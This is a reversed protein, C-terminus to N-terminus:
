AVAVEAMEEVSADEDDPIFEKAKGQLAKEFKQLIDELLEKPLLEVRSMLEENQEARKEERRGEIINKLRLSNKWLESQVNELSLRLERTLVAPDALLIHLATSCLLHTNYANEQMAPVITKLQEAVGSFNPKTEDPRM